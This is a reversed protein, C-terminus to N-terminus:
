ALREHGVLALYIDELSLQPQRRRARMDDPSGSEVVRGHNIVCVTDAAEAEELYHTTLFLTTHQAARAEHLHSWLSRRSEPDLGTTPEDLFLVRPQHLLARLIELKRRTGGSLKRVPRGLLDGVGLTAALDEVRRRYERAMLHWSPRWAYMGYLLAHLRVNEEATLNPDLSPQQFVVGIDRRVGAPDRLLDRGAIQIRGSTPRLTTTLISVTTTKGAGNPGLLCFLQGEQVEFSLDDVANSEARRYRKVLRSVEIATVRVASAVV